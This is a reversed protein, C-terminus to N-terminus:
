KTTLFIVFLTRTFNEVKEIKKKKQEFNKMIKNMKRTFLLDLFDLSFIRSKPDTNSYHRIRSKLICLDLFDM